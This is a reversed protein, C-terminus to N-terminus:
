INTHQLVHCCFMFYGEIVGHRCPLAGWCSKCWNWGCFTENERLWIALMQVVFATSRLKLLAFGWLRKSTKLDKAMEGGIQMLSCCVTWVISCSKHIRQLVNYCGTSWLESSYYCGLLHQWPNPFFGIFGLQAFTLEYWGEKFHKVFPHPSKQSLTQKCFNSNWVKTFSELKESTLGSKGSIEKKKWIKEVKELKWLMNGGNKGVLDKWKMKKSVALCCKASSKRCLETPCLRRWPWVCLSPWLAGRARGGKKSCFDRLFNPSFGLFVDHKLYLLLTTQDTEKLDM